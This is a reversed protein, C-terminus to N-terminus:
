SGKNISIFSKNESKNINAQKIHLGTLLCYTSIIINIIAVSKKGSGISPSSEWTYSHNNNCVTHVRVMAGSHVIKMNEKDVVAGCCPERCVSLLSVLSSMFVIVKPSSLYGDSEKGEISM